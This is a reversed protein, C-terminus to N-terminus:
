LVLIPTFTRVMDVRDNVLRDEHQVWCHASFPGLQVGLVVDPRM